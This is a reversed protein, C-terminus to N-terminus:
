HRGYTGSDPVLGEYPKALCYAWGGPFGASPRATPRFWFFGAAAASPTTDGVRVVVVCSSNLSGARRNPAVFSVGGTPLPIQSYLLPMQDFRTGPATAVPLLLRCQCGSPGGIRAPLCVPLPAWRAVDRRLAALGLATTGDDNDVTGSAGQVHGYTGRAQGNFETAAAATKYRSDRSRTRPAHPM